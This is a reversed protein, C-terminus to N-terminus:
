FNLISYNGIVKHCHHLLFHVSPTLTNWNCSPDNHFQDLLSECYDRIKQPDVPQGCALAELLIKFKFILTRPYIRLIETFTDINEFCTKATQGCNSNGKTTADTENVKIGLKIRFEQQYEKRRQKANKRDMKSRIRWYCFDRYECGKVLWYLLRQRLHCQSFGVTLNKAPCRLFKPHRRNKMLKPSANCGICVSTASTGLWHVKAKGDLLSPFAKYNITVGSAHNFPQLHRADSLLKQGISSSNAKNEKMYKFVLPRCAFPSNARPNAWVVCSKGTARDEAKLMVCVTTCAFVSKEDFEFGKYRTVSFGDGGFKTVMTLNCNPSFTLVRSLISPDLLLREMFHDNSNQMSVECVKQSCVIEKPEACSEKYELVLHYPPFINAHRKIANNRLWQYTAKTMNCEIIMALAQALTMM